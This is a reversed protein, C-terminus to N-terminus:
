PDVRVSAGPVIRHAGTAIAQEGAQLTGRVLVRDAETYIVEVTRRAVKFVPSADAPQASREAADALVYVSWLGREDPALATTPLWFGEAAQTDTLILRVTQGLTLTEAALTLVVTVTRSTTELEPLLATVTAPYNRGGIELIQESGLNLGDAVAPPMGVRAELPGTAVLSLVGQGGNVVEGEDVLRSSVIGAFPAYVVSKELEVAVQRLGADLQKVRAAQAEIQESRAGAQLEDLQSQAQALRNELAGATYTQQDLAEQSIAGESYLSQRRDRQVQALQLQQQVEAVAATAAAIDQPRPGNQLERLQALAQQRQAMLQQQQAELARADLRALPQGAVVRDGEDVQLGIVTGAREFGLQSSRSAVLEGTYERQTTYSYVPEVTVTKVSLEAAAAEVPATQSRVQFVYVGGALPLIALLLWWPRKRPSRAQKSEDAAPPPAPRMVSDSVM